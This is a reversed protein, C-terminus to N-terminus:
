LGIPIPEDKSYQIVLAVSDYPIYLSQHSKIKNLIRNACMYHHNDMSIETCVLLPHKVKGDDFSGDNMERAYIRGAVSDANLVVLYQM